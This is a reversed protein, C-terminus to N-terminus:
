DDPGRRVWEVKVSSKHTGIEHLVVQQQRLATSRACLESRNISFREKLNRLDPTMLVALDLSRLKGNGAVDGSVLLCHSIKEVRSGFRRNSTEQRLAKVKSKSADGHGFAPSLDAHM